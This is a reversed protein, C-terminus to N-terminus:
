QGAGVQKRVKAAEATKGADELKDAYMVGVKYWNSQTRFQGAMEKPAKIKAWTQEYLKLVNKELKADILMQETRQLADVVFPGANAYRQVVDEYCKGAKKKEGAEEWMVGQSFRIESALDARSGYSTFVAEWMGNQVQVEKVSVIMPHLVAMSFEPYKRGCLKELTTAWTRKQAITLKEASSMEALLFWATAYGPCRRLGRDLLILAEDTTIARPDAPKSGVAPPVLPDAAVKRGDTSLTFWLRAADTMSAAARRDAPTTGILEALLSVHSDPIEQGTQPDDINGRIGQYAEYRGFNFNWAGTKGAAQLFGVWAHGVEASSAVTYTTPVGISKGATMAYYAQDACVGGFKLINPLDFGQKTVEKTTGKLFHDYDYKIDFFRKGIALDGKYKGLAWKVDKISATVDVVYVLLQPPMAKLGFLMKKENDVFFDYLETVPPAKVANENIYRTLPEDHVVCLAAILNAYSDFDSPRHTHIAKFAAYAGGIRDHGPKILFALAQAANPNARTLKLIDIRADADVSQLHTTLRALYAAESYAAIDTDPVQSIVQEFLAKAQAAAEELNANKELEDLITKAKAKVADEAPTAQATSLCPAFLTLCLSTLITAAVANSNSRIM